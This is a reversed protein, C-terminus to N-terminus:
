ERSRPGRYDPRGFPLVGPEACPAFPVMAAIEDLRALVEGPLPGKEAAEVNAEVEAQSRAGTLTCAIDPNSLVFRLGVEAVPLELEDLYAYLARYQERRPPSLFWGETDVDYRRALAGMQLPSGSIVGVGLRRAAPLLTLEAERWLLSYNLASLVVDFKGTEVLRALEYATTGGLGLFRILGERKLDHLVDMVPGEAAQLDTWWDIEMPRDPEHVLLMDIRDRRLLELSQEFLRRLHGPDRPELPQGTRGHGLKTSVILPQDIECIIRGLVDESDGYGPATDIYNVGLEVARRVARTAEDFAAGYSSIFIGGLSLRSVCLGTRGLQAREM